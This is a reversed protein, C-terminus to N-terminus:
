RFGSAFLGHGVGLLDFVLAALLDIFQGAAFRRQEFV